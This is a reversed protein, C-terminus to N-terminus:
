IITRAVRFGLMSSPHLVNQMHKTSIKSFSPSNYWSGGKIVMSELTLDAIDKKLEMISFTKEFVNFKFMNSNKSADRLRKENMDVSYIDNCWENVNGTMDYIGWANPKNLRVDHTTRPKNPQYSPYIELYDNTSSYISKTNAKAAYEWELEFPLRYGNAHADFFICDKKFHYCPTLDKSLSLQNCFIIAEVWSIREVPLHNGINNSHNKFGLAIWTKQTIPINSIYFPKEISVNYHSKSNDDYTEFFGIPCKIEDFDLDLTSDDKYKLFSKSKFIYNEQDMFSDLMKAYQSMSPLSCHNDISFVDVTHQQTNYLSM